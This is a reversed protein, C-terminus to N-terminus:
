AEFVQKIKEPYGGHWYACALKDSGNFSGTEHLAAARCPGCKLRFECNGCIPNKEFSAGLRTDILEFFESDSLIETLPTNMINPADDELSTGVTPICPLVEGGPALYIHTRCAGCVPLNLARETGSRKHYSSSWDGSDRACTFFGGLSLTMPMGDRRYEGIIDLFSNYLDSVCIERKDTEGAWRGSNMVTCAKWADIGLEKLFEYTQRLSVVNDGHLTTNVAVYFGAAKIQKIADVVRSEVGAKGRLWDHYGVGDFSVYFVWSLSRKSCEDLFHEDILLANTFLETVAIRKELLADVIDWFDARILPEGGTLSVAAVNAREFQDIIGLCDQISPQVRKADSANVYCHRCKLNCGDTISWQVSKIYRCDARKYEQYAALSTGTRHEELFGRNVGMSVLDDYVELSEEEHSVGNLLLDYLPQFQGRTM